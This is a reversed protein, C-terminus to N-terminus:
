IQTSTDRPLRIEVDAVAVILSDVETFSNAYLTSM